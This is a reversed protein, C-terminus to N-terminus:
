VLGNLFKRIEQNLAHPQDYHIMHGADAITVHRANRFLKRRREIERDHLDDRGELEGRLQLWYEMASDGTVLL